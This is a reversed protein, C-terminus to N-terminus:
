NQGCNFDGFTVSKDRFAFVYFERVYSFHERRKTTELFLM